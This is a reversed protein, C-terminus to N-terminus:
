WPVLSQRGRRGPERGTVCSTRGSGLSLCYCSQPRQCSQRESAARAVRGKKKKIEVKHKINFKTYIHTLAPIVSAVPPRPDRSSSNCTVTFRPCPNSSGVQPGRFATQGTLWWVMEGVGGEKKDRRIKGYGPPYITDSDKQLHTVPPTLIPHSKGLDHCFGWTEQNWVQSRM